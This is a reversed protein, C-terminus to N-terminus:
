SHVCAAGAAAVVTAGAREVWGRSSGSRWPGCLADPCPSLGQGGMRRRGAAARRPAWGCSRAVSRTRWQRPILLPDSATCACSPCSIIISGGSIARPRTTRVRSSRRSLCILATRAGPPPSAPPLTLPAPPHPIPNHHPNRRGAPEGVVGPSKEDFLLVMQAMYEDMPPRRSSTASASRRRALVPPLLLRSPYAACLPPKLRPIVPSLGTPLACRFTRSEFFNMESPKFLKIKEDLASKPVQSVDPPFARSIRPDTTAHKVCGSAHPYPHTVAVTPRCEGRGATTTHWSRQGPCRQVSSSRFASSASNSSPLKPARLSRAVNRWFGSHLRASRVRRLALGGHRALLPRSRAQCDNKQAVRPQSFFRVLM